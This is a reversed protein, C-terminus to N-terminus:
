FKVAFGLELSHNRVADFNVRVRTPGQDIHGSDIHVYRYGLSLDLWRNVDYVIGTRAQYAFATRWDDVSTKVGAFNIFEHDYNVRAGGLGVGVYPKFPGLFPLKIDYYVNAMLLYSKVAGGLDVGAESELPSHVFGLEGEARLGFPFVYGVAAGGTFGTKYRAPDEFGPRGDITEPTWGPGGRIAAYLNEALAASPLLLAIVATAVVWGLAKRM